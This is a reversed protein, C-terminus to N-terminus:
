VSWIGSVLCLLYQIPVHTQKQTEAHKQCVWDEVCILHWNGSMSYTSSLYIHTNETNQGVWDIDHLVQWVFSFFVCNVSTKLCKPIYLLFCFFNYLAFPKLFTTESKYFFFFQTCMSPLMASKAACMSRLWASKTGCMSRLCLKLSWFIAWIANEAM